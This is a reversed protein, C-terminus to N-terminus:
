LGLKDNNDENAFVKVARLKLLWEQPLYTALFEWDWGNVENWYDQVTKVRVEGTPRAEIVIEALRQNDM